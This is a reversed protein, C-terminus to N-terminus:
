GRALREKRACCQLQEPFAPSPIPGSVSAGKLRINKIIEENGSSVFVGPLLVSKKSRRQSGGHRFFYGLIQM